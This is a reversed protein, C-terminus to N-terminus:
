PRLINFGTEKIVRCCSNLLQVQQKQYEDEPLNDDFGDYGVMNHLKNRESKKESLNYPPSTVVVDISDDPIETLGGCPKNYIHDLKM